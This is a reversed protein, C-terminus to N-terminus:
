NVKKNKSQEFANGSTLAAENSSILEQRAGLGTRADLAQAWGQARNKRRARMRIFKLNSCAWM